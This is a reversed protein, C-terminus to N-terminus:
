AATNLTFAARIDGVHRRNHNFLRPDWGCMVADIVSQEILDLQELVRAIIVAHSRFSGDSVRIAIGLGREPVGVCLLGEAGSKAVLRGGSHKMLDTDIRGHSGGVNEPHTTMAGRLRNLAAAHEHGQGVPAAEPAALAAFAAAMSRISTGFTPLSCGDTALRLEDPCVRCVKAVIGRITQQLPHGPELYNETPYGLQLSSALMGTHKGSCDCQLPSKPKHGGVVLSAEHEDMPLPAGCQLANTDLGLKGLMLTVQQQHSAEASHSSCCLALEAPTFGFRDAAGSEILPVAQFPKASSRFYAFTTPDGSWAVPTGSVDSVVVTGIHTSEVAGGRTVEALLETVSQGKM